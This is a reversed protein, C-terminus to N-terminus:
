GLVDLLTGVQNIKTEIIKTAAVAQQEAVKLEILPEVLDAGKGNISSQAIETASTQIRQTADTFIKVGSAIPNITM